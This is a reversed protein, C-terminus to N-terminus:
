IFLAKFSGLHSDPPESGRGVRMTDALLASSQCIDAESPMVQTSHAHLYGEKGHDYDHTSAILYFGAPIMGELVVPDTETPPEPVTEARQDRLLASTWDKFPIQVQKLAAFLLQPRLALFGGKIALEAM